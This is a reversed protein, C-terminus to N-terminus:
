VARENAGAGRDGAGGGGTGGARPFARRITLSELEGVYSGGSHAAQFWPSDLLDTQSALMSQDRYAGAILEGGSEFYVVELFTDHQNLVLDALEPNAKLAPVGLHELTTLDDRTHSVFAAVERAMGQGAEGLRARWSAQENRMLLYTAFGGGVILAFLLSAWSVLVLRSRLGLGAKTAKRSKVPPSVGM